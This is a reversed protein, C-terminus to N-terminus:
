GLLVAKPDNQHNFSKNLLELLMKKKKKLNKNGETVSHSGKTCPNSFGPRIM